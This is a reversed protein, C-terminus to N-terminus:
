DLSHYFLTYKFYELTTQFSIKSLLSFRLYKTISFEGSKLYSLNVLAVEGHFM